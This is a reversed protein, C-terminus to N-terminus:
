FARLRLAGASMRCMRRTTGPRRLRSKARLMLEAGGGGQMGGRLGCEGDCECYRQQRRGDCVAGRVGGREPNNVGLQTGPGQVVTQTGSPITSVKQGIGAAVAAVQTDVYSKDSAQMAATPDASLVLPGTMSDGSKLVYPNATTDLPHGTVAAAIATDVYSKSVTQMAVSTPLVTSKIASVTVAATQSPVVWYERTVSGDDLHYVATYYSGMPTSGANPVLQVSLLGGAGITVSTSGAPVSSGGATTFSPWSLLVTGTATTGDAEYITDTVRTTAISSTQALAEGGLVLEAGFALTWALCLRVLAWGVRRVGM